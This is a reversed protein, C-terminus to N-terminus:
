CQVKFAGFWAHSAQKETTTRPQELFERFMYAIAVAREQGWLHWAFRKKQLCLTSYICSWSAVLSSIVQIDGGQSSTKKIGSHVICDELFVFCFSFHFCGVPRGARLDIFGLLWFPVIVRLTWYYWEYKATFLLEWIPSSVWDVLPFSNM